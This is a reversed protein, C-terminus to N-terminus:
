LIKSISEWLLKSTRDWPFALKRIRGKVILEQRLLPEQWIRQMANAIAKTDYPDVVLAADGVVEPVSTTNSAIVPVDCQMAEIPPIGFGEFYPVFTLCLASAFVIKLEDVPLQGTFIVDDKHRMGDRFNHMERTRFMERGVLLLKIDSSVSQKFIEFAQLLRIINKRPHLTGVFVFFEAGRSYKKKVEKKIEETVPKYFSNIGCYVVDIKGPDTGFTKIIDNKSYESVTALRSAKVAYRPFFYSYFKRNAWKLDTPIHVFNIDHIVGYQKGNWGMCLIGDPSLFLAPNAKKLYRSVSWEFWAINLIAHKAPPFLSHPVINKSFLFQEDIGSDFLFHFEIGPNNTTIYKLTNYTFWGIGDMHNARLLRTNVVIKM